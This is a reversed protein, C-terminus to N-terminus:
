IVVVITEKEEDGLISLHIYGKFFFLINKKIRDEQQEIVWSIKRRGKHGFKKVTTRDTNM